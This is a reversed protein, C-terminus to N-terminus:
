TLECNYTPPPLAVSIWRDRLNTHGFAWMPTRSPDLRGSVCGPAETALVVIIPWGGGEAIAKYDKHAAHIGRHGLICATSRLIVGHETGGEIAKCIAQRKDIGGASSAADIFLDKAALLLEASRIFGVYLTHLRL